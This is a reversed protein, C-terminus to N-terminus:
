MEDPSLGQFGKGGIEFIPLLVVFESVSKTIFIRAFHESRRLNVM